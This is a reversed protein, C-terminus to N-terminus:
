KGEKLKKLEEEAIAKCGPCLKEGLRHIRSAILMNITAKHDESM